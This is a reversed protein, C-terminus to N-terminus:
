GVWCSMPASQANRPSWPRCVMSWHLFGYKEMLRAVLPAHVNLMYGRYEETSIGQKKFGLINLCLLKNNSEM